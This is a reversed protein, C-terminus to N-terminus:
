YNIIIYWSLIGLTMFSLLTIMSCGILCRRTFRIFEIKVPKPYVKSKQVDLKIEMKDTDVTESTKKIKPPPPQLPRSFGLGGAKM